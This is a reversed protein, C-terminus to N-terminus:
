RTIGAIRRLETLLSVPCKAVAVMDEANRCLQVGRRSFYTRDTLRLARLEEHTAPDIWFADAGALEDAALRRGDRDRPTRTGHIILFGYPLVRLVVQAGGVVEAGGV